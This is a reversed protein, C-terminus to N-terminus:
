ASYRSRRDASIHSTLNLNGVHFIVSARMWCRLTKCSGCRLRASWLSLYLRPVQASVVNAKNTCWYLNCREGCSAFHMNNNVRLVRSFHCRRIFTHPRPTQMLDCIFESEAGRVNLFLSHFIERQQLSIKNRSLTKASECAQFCTQM